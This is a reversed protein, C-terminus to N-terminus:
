AGPVVALIFVAVAYRTRNLATEKRDSPHGTAICKRFFRGLEIGPRTPKARNGSDIPFSEANHTAEVTGTNDDHKQRTLRM